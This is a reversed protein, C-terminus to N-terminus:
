SDFARQSLWHHQVPCTSTPSRRIRPHVDDPAGGAKHRGGRGPRVRLKRLSRLAGTLLNEVVMHHCHLHERPCPKSEGGGQGAPHRPRPRLLRRPQLGGPLAAGSQM